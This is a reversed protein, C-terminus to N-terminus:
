HCPHKEKTQKATDSNPTTTDFWVNHSQACILKVHPIRWLISFLISKEIIEIPADVNTCRKGVTVQGRYTIRQHLLATICYHLLATISYHQLATISYHQLAQFLITSLTSTPSSQHKMHSRTVSGHTNRENQQQELERAMWSAILPSGLTPTGFFYPKKAENTIGPQAM